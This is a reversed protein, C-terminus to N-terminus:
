RPSFAIAGVGSDAPTASSTKDEIHFLDVMANDHALSTSGLVPGVADTILEPVSQPSPPRSEPLVMGDTAGHEIESPIFLPTPPTIELQDISWANVSPDTPHRITGM